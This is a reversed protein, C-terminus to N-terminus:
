APIQRNAALIQVICLARDVFVEMIQVRKNITETFDVQWEGNADQAIGYQDGVDDQTPARSGRMAFYTDGKALAVLVTDEYVINGATNDSLAFGLIPTPDASTIITVDGNADLQCLAGPVVTQDATLPYEQVEARTGSPVQAVIPYLM